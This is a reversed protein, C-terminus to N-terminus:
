QKNSSQYGIDEIYINLNLTTVFGKEAVDHVVSDIIWRQQDIVQKFGSVIVPTQAFLDSRGMALKISFTAIGTQIQKFVADAARKATEEDPYTKLLVLTNGAAGTMYSEMKETEQGNGKAATAAKPHSTKAVSTQSETRQVGTQNLQAKKVDHWKAEVGSYAPKDTIVFSHSDGDSRHISMWPLPKGSGTLGYGPKVFIIAGQNVTVQAGYMQALRMLFFADTENTQDIHSVKIAALEPSLNAPPFQNRRSIIGVIAGLTYDDYSYSGKTNFSGRFDASRATINLKDPAGTHKVSDVIFRGCGILPEGKWGLYLNLVTGREPMQCAGDSDDFTVDLTDAAFGSNDVVKLAMVRESVSRELAKDEVTLTFNPMIKAGAPLQLQTIM